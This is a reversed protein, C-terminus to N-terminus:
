FPSPQNQHGEGRQLRTTLCNALALTEDRSGRDLDDVREHTRVIEEILSAKGVGSKRRDMMPREFTAQVEEVLNHATQATPQLLPNDEQM